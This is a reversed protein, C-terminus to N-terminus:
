GNSTGIMGTGVPRKLGLQDAPGAGAGGLDREGIDPAAGAVEVDHV